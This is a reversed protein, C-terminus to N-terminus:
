KSATAGELVSEFCEELVELGERVATEEICLPPCIKVSAGGFGVPGFMMVGRKVAEGAVM